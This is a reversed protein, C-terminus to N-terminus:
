VEKYANELAIKLEETLNNPYKIALEVLHHGNQKYKGARVGKDKIVIVSGSRSHKPIHITHKGDVIPVDVDGGFLLTDLPISETSIVNNEKVYMNEHKITPVVDITVNSTINNAYENGANKVVLTAQKEGIPPIKVKIKKSVYNGGKGGCDKCPDGLKGKGFCLSCTERTIQSMFGTRVERQRFGMGKCAECIKVTSQNTGSGNCSKCYIEKKYEIEKECGLITETFSINLFLSVDTIPKTTRRFDFGKTPNQTFPSYSFGAGGFIDEWNRRFFDNANSHITQSYIHDDESRESGTLIQYAQNIKKFESESDNNGPNKDPHHEVAKKRFAKKIENEDASESLGLVSYAESKKM